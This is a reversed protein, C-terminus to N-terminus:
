IFSLLECDRNLGRPHLTNLEHIWYAERYKLISVRDGGRRPPTIQEIIQFKLQSVNHGKEIFHSPIPLLLNKCRITSKHKSIAFEFSLFTACEETWVYFKLKIPVDYM